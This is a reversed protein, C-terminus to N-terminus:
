AAGLSALRDGADFPVGTRDSLDLATRMDKRGTTRPVIGQRKCDGMLSLDRDWEKQASADRGSASQCYAVRINKSRLCAGFTEHGGGCGCRKWPEFVTM